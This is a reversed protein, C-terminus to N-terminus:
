PAPELLIDRLTAIDDRTFGLDLFGAVRAERPLDLFAKQRANLLPVVAGEAPRLLHLADHKM